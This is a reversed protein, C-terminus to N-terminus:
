SERSGFLATGLRVHTAGEEIAVEFDASMGMSLWGPFDISASLDDRLLRLKRFWPRADEPRDGRPPIAMLGLLELHEFGSVTTAAALVETVRFGHKTEEGGLNVALFCGLRRGGLGAERDLARAIKMRDISQVVDFLAAAKRAKNSQLPGILHWSVDEPLLPQNAAAEQVRNEGFTRLGARHAALLREIPQHKCAGVVVVDGPDRGCRQCAAEVRSVLGNLASGSESEGGERESTM